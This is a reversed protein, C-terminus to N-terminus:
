CRLTEAIARASLTTATSTPLRLWARGWLKTGKRRALTSACTRSCLVDGDALAAVKSQADDGVTDTAFAVEKGLLEALRVAAPRLSYKADGPDGGGEPRGLHSMLIVKGGRNLVSNISPLASQIRRDDTIHQQDGLPVNFDVRILVTKGAVDVEAITKKAM